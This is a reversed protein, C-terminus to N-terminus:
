SCFLSLSFASQAQNTSERFENRTFPCNLNNCGHPSFPLSLMSLSLSYVVIRFLLCHCPFFSFSSFDNGFLEITRRKTENRPISFCLLTGLTILQRQISTASDLFLPPLSLSLHPSTTPRKPSSLSVSLPSDSLEQSLLPLPAPPLPRPPLSEVPPPLAISFFLTLSSDSHFRNRAPLQSV